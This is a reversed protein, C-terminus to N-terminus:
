WSRPRTPRPLRAGIGIEGRRRALRERPPPFRSVTSCVSSLEAGAELEGAVVEVDAAGAIQQALLLRAMDAFDADLEVLLHELFGDRRRARRECSSLLSHLGCILRPM